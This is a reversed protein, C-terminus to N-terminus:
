ASKNFLKTYFIRRGESISFHPFSCVATTVFKMPQQMNRNNFALFVHCSNTQQKFSFWIQGKSTEILWSGLSLENIVNFISNALQLKKWISNNASYSFKDVSLVCSFRCFLFWNSEILSSPKIWTILQGTWKGVTNFWRM